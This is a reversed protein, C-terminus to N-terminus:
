YIKNGNSVILGIGIRCLRTGTGVERNGPAPWNQNIDPSPEHIDGFYLICKKKSRAWHTCFYPHYDCEFACYNDSVISITNVRTETSDWRKETLHCPGIYKCSYM